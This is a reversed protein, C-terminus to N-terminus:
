SAEEPPKTDAMCRVRHNGNITSLKINEVYAWAMGHEKCFDEFRQNPVWNIKFM